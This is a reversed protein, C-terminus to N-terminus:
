CIDYLYLVFLCSRKVVAHRMRSYRSSSLAKLYTPLQSQITLLRTERDPPVQNLERGPYLTGQCLNNMTKRMGELCLGFYYKLIRWLRERERGKWNAM